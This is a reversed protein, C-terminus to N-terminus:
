RLSRCFYDSTFLYTAISQDPCLHGTFLLAPSPCGLVVTNSPDAIGVDRPGEERGERSVDGLVPGWFLLASM